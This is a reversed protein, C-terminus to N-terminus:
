QSDYSSYFRSVNVEDWLPQNEKLFATFQQAFYPILSVGKSGFGNFVYIHEYEPHKGIIPRRDKTAPRVGAVTNLIEYKARSLKQLKDLIEQQGKKSPLLDEFQNQYNSGIRTTDHDTPLIFVGRNLITEPQHATKAELVEGKVGKMPLWGFHDTQLVRLGNCYIVAKYDNGMYNFGANTKELKDPNFYAEQYSNEQVLSKKNAELLDPIKVYGSQALQLGGYEDHLDYSEIGKKHIKSIFPKYSEESQKMDWDNQDEYSFFPRYIGIPRLFSAGLQAELKKYYPELFPFLHDAAWTKVMKRGTVPNYLGAAVSSSHNNSPQDLVEVTFGQELLNHSLIAGALGHGIILFDKM